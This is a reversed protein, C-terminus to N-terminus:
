DVGHSFLFIFLLWCKFVIIHGGCFKYNLEGDISDDVM